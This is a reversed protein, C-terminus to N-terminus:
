PSPGRSPRMASHIAHDLCLTNSSLGCHHWPGPPTAAIGGMFEQATAHLQRHEHAREFASWRLHADAILQHFGGRM